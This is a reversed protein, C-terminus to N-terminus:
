SQATREEQECLDKQLLCKAIIEVHMAPWRHSKELM